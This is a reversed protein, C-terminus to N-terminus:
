GRDRRLDDMLEDLRYLFKEAGEDSTDFAEVGRDVEKALRLLLPLAASVTDRWARRRELWAEYTMNDPDFHGPPGLELRVLLSSM